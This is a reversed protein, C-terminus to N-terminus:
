LISLSLGIIQYISEGFVKKICEVLWWVMIKIFVGQLFQEIFIALFLSRVIQDYRAM